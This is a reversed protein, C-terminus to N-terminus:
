LGAGSTGGDPGGAVAIEVGRIGGTVAIATSVTDYGNGSGGYFMGIINYNPKWVTVGNTLLEKLTIGNAKVNTIANNLINFQIGM